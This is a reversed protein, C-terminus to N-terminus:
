VETWGYVGPEYVNYDIDSEWTKGNHRVRDGKMYPNTSSPQEWEPIDPSSLVKAWLSVSVDPTWDAQSTHAMLCRYPLEGYERLDGAVYARGAEWPQMYPAMRCLTADPIQEMTQPSAAFLATLVEEPSATDREYWWKVGDWHLVMGDVEGPFDEVDFPVGDGDLSVTTGNVLIKM